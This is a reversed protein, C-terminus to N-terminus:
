HHNDYFDRNDAPEDTINVNSGKALKLKLKLWVPQSQNRGHPLGCLCHLLDFDSAVVDSM